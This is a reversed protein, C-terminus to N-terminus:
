GEDGTERHYYGDFVTAWTEGGDSSQEFHQRVVGDELPTWTGKFPQYDGSQYFYVNGVLVMSGDVIGGRIELQIAPSVWVQVWERAHMDYFNMSTGPTGVAGMWHEMILCGGQTKEIRNNGQFVGAADQVRWSGLWFDFQSMEPVFKCPVRNSEVKEMIEDYGENDSLSGLVEDDEIVSTAPFGADAAANLSKMAEEEDGETVRIRAREVDLYAAPVAGGEAKDLWDAAEELQGVHRLTVALRYKYRADSPAQEVLERYAKEASEWQQAAYYDNAEEPTVAVSISAWAIGALLLCSKRVMSINVFRDGSVIKCQESQQRRFSPRRDRNSFGSYAM